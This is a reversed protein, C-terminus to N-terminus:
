FGAAHSDFSSNLRKPHALAQVSAESHHVVVARSLTRNIQGLALKDLYCSEKTTDGNPNRASAM